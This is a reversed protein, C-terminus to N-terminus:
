FVEPEYGNNKCYELYTDFFQSRFHEYHESSIHSEHLDPYEASLYEGYWFIDNAFKM